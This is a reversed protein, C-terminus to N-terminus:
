GVLRFNRDASRTSFGWQEDYEIRGVYPRNLFIETSPKYNWCKIKTIKSTDDVVEIILYDSGRRTKKKILKRPIFWVVDDEEPDFDGIAPIERELLRGITKETMVEGIPFQGILEVFNNIREDKSFEGEERLTENEINFNLDKPKRPRMVAVASWFHKDGAFREDQLTSLAGSRCLVDVNKKNLKSYVVRPHFLFEEVTNFPRHDLVEKMAKEGFGKISTLPQILTQGDESIDWVDGSLNVNLPMIEFGQNKAISIAKEKRTEPEKDLFAAMWEAPFYNLLWACQYSLISYSVAHSKNFGYGSFYEFNQWMEDADSQLIGKKAAGNVFKQYLEEKVKAAKGTGRKTLVKRLMNGEDLTLGQGIRHAIKAIQEQFILFGYTEETDEKIYDNPYEIDEPNEKASVYDKDVGASNHVVFDGAIFNHHPGEMEIDFTPKVQYDGLGVFRVWIMDKTPTPLKCSERAELLEEKSKSGETYERHHNPCLFSLNDPHNDLERNKEVHNVDLSGNEWDCFVCKHKYHYFALNRFNKKGDTHKISKSSQQGASKFNRVCIYDGKKLDGLRKWGDITLFRHDLTACLKNGDRRFSDHVGKRAGTLARETLVNYVTKFGSQWINKIRNSVLEGTEENYSVISMPKRAKKQREPDHFADHLRDIRLSKTELKGNYRKHKILVDSDYSICLPGPRFISTIAAIDVISCPKARQCFSQAGSETFQFVGAWRGGHFINTYVSQDDLDIVDPHLNSDYYSKVDDYTPNKIGHHRRLIHTIAVEMMRLSALGLLDFKIFGMPELHRVNMGESWPTQRVGKSNILPMWEDLNEAIVVGGAHRSASRIAGYLRNVHTKVDPYKKLFDKLSDSYEMVEEFTPNYVGAKIGHAAKAKPTAEYLMKSTVANTETFPIGYFKGIDKILSRLQLTNWNSIPVVVNDGWEDILIDKLKMPDSVDHDIDPFGNDKQNKTMFREFLLGWKIPNVQTIKLAYAVLSGAASGRAPGSLMVENGRDVLAKMTLFYSAFGNTNIVDLELDLRSKYEQWEKGVLKLNKKIEKLGDNSLKTLEEEATMGKPVVFSPLRVTNDPYFDAIREHAIDYTNELSKRIVSDDYDVGNQESYRQYAEWIQEGNKPYLESGVEEVSEPLETDVDKSGAWALRKYLIRDKWADPTPYHSDATSILPIGFEECVKIVLKNLDHQEKYAHWQLEGYWRDGFIDLMNQSTKRMADLVADEGNEWNEWFDGAYVGGLCASSAIIGENHQRLMDYDIRPFRYFNPTQYSQSVMRFLNQLGTQNQALLILHRRKNIINKIARKSAAEDEVTAASVESGTDKKSRGKKAAAKEADIAEKDKQWQLISPHFYAEVGYIPKFKKGEKAMKKAHLVQYSLGNMNGHDTLALADSGNEFAFDMHEQPYGLGDYVSAASHAHLGVFPIKSM